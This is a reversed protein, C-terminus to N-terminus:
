HRFHKELFVAQDTLGHTKYFRIAGANDPMTTVSVEVCGRAELCALLHRLLEGGVGGGRAEEAVVMEEILASKGGHYLNPRVSCTIMGLAAGNEEGRALLVLNGPTTLYLRVYEDTIPSEDGMSAALSEILRRIATADEASAVAAERIQFRM